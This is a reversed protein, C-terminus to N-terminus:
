SGDECGIDESRPPSPCIVRSKGTEVDPGVQFGNSIYRNQEEMADKIISHLPQQYINPRLDVIQHLSCARSIPNAAIQLVTVSPFSHIHHIVDLSM